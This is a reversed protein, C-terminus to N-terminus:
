ARSPRMASETRWAASPRASSARMLCRVAPPPAVIVSVRSLILPSAMRNARAWNFKVTPANSALRRARQRRRRAPARRRRRDARATPVPWWRSDAARGASDRWSRRRSGRAARDCRGGTRRAAPCGPRRPRVAIGAPLPLGSKLAATARDRRACRREGGCSAAASRRRRRRPGSSRAPRTPRASSQELADPEAHGDAFLDPVVRVEPRLPEVGAIRDGLQGRGAGLM